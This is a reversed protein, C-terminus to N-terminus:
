FPCRLFTLSSNCHLCRHVLMPKQTIEPYLNLHQKPSTTLLGSNKHCFASALFNDNKNKRTYYSVDSNAAPMGCGGPNGPAGPDGPGAPGGPIGPFAPSGPAGPRGPSLPKGPLGPGCPGCPARPGGPGGPGAADSSM